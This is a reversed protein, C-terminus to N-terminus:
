TKVLSFMILQHSDVPFSPHELFVLLGFFFFIGGWRDLIFGVEM